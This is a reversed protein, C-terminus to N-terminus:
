LGESQRAPQKVLLASSADLDLATALPVIALKEYSVLGNHLNSSFLVIESVNQKGLDIHEFPSVLDRCSKLSRLRALTLHPTFEPEFKEPAQLADELAAQLDLIHQSRQVGLYIVRAQQLSPFGGIGRIKLKFSAHKEAIPQMNAILSPIKEDDTDGLFLLTVHFNDKPTWNLNTEKHDATKKIKRIWPELDTAFQSSFALGIFLRKHGM